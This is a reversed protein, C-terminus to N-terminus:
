EVLAGFTRTSGRPAGTAGVRLILLYRASRWVAKLYGYNLPKGEVQGPARASFTKGSRRFASFKKGSAQAGLRSLLPRLVRYFSLFDAEASPRSDEVAGVLRIAVRVAVIEQPRAWPGRDLALWARLTEKWFPETGEYWHHVLWRRSGSRMVRASVAVTAGPEPGELELTSEQETVWGSGPLEAKPSLPSRGRNSRDGIGVFIRADRGQWEVTRAVAEHFGTSGLFLRDIDREQSFGLGAILEGAVAPPPEGPAWQPLGLRVLAMTALAAVALRPGVGRASRAAAAAPLADARRLPLKELLGDWLFLLVLGGLLIAVGQMNHIAAIESHPNLILLLARVGNLFFAVVPAVGVLFWAHLSGRRFLDAMLIAVMTLIEISRLGSCSEIVSFLEHTRQIQEGAVFHPIGLLYLFFGALEATGIQLRFVIENLLPAPMAMAFALFAIPVSAVRVAQGGRWLWLAACLTLMLAIPLLDNALTWTAWAHAGVALLLLLAGVALGGPEGRVARLHASRRYFLWGSLLVVLPAITESPVFFWEELEEPLSREPQFSLLPRFALVGAVAAAAAWALLGAAPASPRGAPPPTGADTADM